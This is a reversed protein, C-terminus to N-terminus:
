FVLAGVAVAMAALTAYGIVLHTKAISAQDLRGEQQAAYVGVVGQAIMGVTALAMGAKHVTVRDYHDKKVPNGPALLAITGDVAFLGLTSFALVAHTAQYRGTVPPNSGYKDNYNLQGVVTTALTLAALGIGLKQHWGLMYARKKMTEDDIQVV